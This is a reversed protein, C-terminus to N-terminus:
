IDVQCFSRQFQSGAAPSFFVTIPSCTAKLTYHKSMIAAVKFRIRALVVVELDVKGQSRDMRLDEVASGNVQVVRATPNVVIPTANRSPQHFSGLKSTALLQDEYYVIVKLSDYYVSVKQNRNDAMLKLHFTSNLEGDSSLNFSNISADEVTYELPAAKVVLWIIFVSLLVGSILLLSATIFCRIRQRRRSRRPQGETATPLKQM